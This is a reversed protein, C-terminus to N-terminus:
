GRLARVIRTKRGRAVASLAAGALLGRTVGVTELEDDVNALRYKYDEGGRLLRFERMGDAVSTRIAHMLLVFGVSHANWDPDRGGQYYSEVGHFRFGYDAARVVGDVELLWLRLWGRDLAQAAFERHFSERQQFDTAGEGWRAKHLAFLTGLDDQLRAPDTALRYGAEFDRFLRRERQRVQGRFNASKTRLFEEWDSHEFRLTPSAERTLPRAGLLTGWGAQVPLREGVFVHAKATALTTRLAAAVAERDAPECIPGLEDAGRHGLFRVVRLPRSRWLYLPLVAVLRGDRDRCAMTLLRGSEGFHKWWTANWEWSAFVNGTRAALAAWEERIADLARVPELELGAAQELVPHPREVIV